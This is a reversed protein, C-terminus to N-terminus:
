NVSKHLGFLREFLSELNLLSKIRSVCRTKLEEESYMDSLLLLDNLLKIDKTEISDNYLYQIFHYYIECSFGKIELENVSKRNAFMKKLYDCNQEVFWKHCYIIDYGNNPDDSPCSKGKDDCGKRKFKFYFNINKSSKFLEFKIRIVRNSSFSKNNVKLNELHDQNLIISENTFPNKINYIIAEQFSSFNTEQPFSVCQGEINQGWSEIKNAENMAFSQCDLTLIETFKSKTAIQTPITLVIIHKHGLQGHSNHGFSYINGETTLLLSFNFGCSIQKVSVNNPMEVLKPKSEIKTDKLGLQGWYNQGWAYVKGTQTLALSHRYGCSISDIKEFEFSSIHTPSMIKTNAGFSGFTYVQHKDTLLLTYSFGSSIDVILHNKISIKQPKCYNDSDIGNGCRGYKCWGCTYVENSETLAVMFRHGFEVKKIDIGCLEKILLPTCVKHVFVNEGFGYVIDDNTTFIVDCNNIRSNIFIKKIRPFWENIICSLQKFKKKLINM